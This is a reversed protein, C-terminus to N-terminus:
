AMDYYGISGSGERRAAAGLSVAALMFALAASIIKKRM